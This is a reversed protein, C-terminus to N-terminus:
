AKRRRELVTFMVPVFFLTSLTALLLGIGIGAGIVIMRRSNMPQVSPAAGVDVHTPSFDPDVPDPYDTQIM